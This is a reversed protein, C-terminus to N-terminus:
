ARRRRAALGVLGLGALMLGWTEAEPVAATLTYTMTGSGLEDTYDAIALVFDDNGYTNTFSFTAPVGPGVTWPDTGDGLGVFVSSAAAGSFLDFYNATDSELGYWVGFVVDFDTPGPTVTLTATDLFDVNFRWFSWNAPTGHTDAGVSGLYTGSGLPMYDPAAAQAATGACALAVALILSKSQM